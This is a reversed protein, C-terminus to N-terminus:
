ISYDLTRSLIGLRILTDAGIREETESQHQPTQPATQRGESNQRGPSTDGGQLANELYATGSQATQTVVQVSSLEPNDLRLTAALSDAQRALMENTKATSVIEVILKGSELVMRVDIKGLDAPQLQMRFEMKQNELNTLIEAEIQKAPSTEAVEQKGLIRGILDNFTTRPPTANMEATTATTPKEEKAVQSEAGHDPNQETRTTAETAKTETVPTTITETAATTKAATKAAAATQSTGTTVTQGKTARLAALQQMAQSVRDGLPNEAKEPTPAPQETQTATDAPKALNATQQEATEAPTTAASQVQVITKGGNEPIVPTEPPNAVTSAPAPETPQAIDAPQATDTTQQGTTEVTPTTTAPAQLTVKGDSEPIAPSEPPPTATSAPATDAPKATETPQQVVTEGTATIAPKAQM